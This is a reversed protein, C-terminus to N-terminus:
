FRLFEFDIVVYSIFPQLQKHIHDYHEKSPKIKVLLMPKMSKFISILGQFIQSM